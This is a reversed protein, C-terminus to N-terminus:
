KKATQSTDEEKTEMADSFDMKNTREYHSAITSIRETTPVVVFPYPHVDDDDKFLSKSGHQTDEENQTPMPYDVWNDSKAM